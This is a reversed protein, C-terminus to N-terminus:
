QEFFFKKTRAMVIDLKHWVFLNLVWFTKAM